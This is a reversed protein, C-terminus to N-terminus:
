PKIKKKKTKQNEFLQHVLCVVSVNIHTYIFPHKVCTKVTKITKQTSFFIIQFSFQFLVMFCLFFCHLFNFLKWFCALSFLKKKQHWCIIFFYCQIPLNIVNRTFQLRRKLTLCWALSGAVDDQFGFCFVSCWSLFTRKFSDFGLWWTTPWGALSFLM